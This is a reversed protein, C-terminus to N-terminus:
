PWSRPGSPRATRWRRPTTWWGPSPPPRFRRRRGRYHGVLGLAAANVLQRETEVYGPISTTPGSGGTGSSWPWSRARVPPRGGQLRRLGRGLRGPGGPGAPRRDGHPLHRGRHHGAGGGAHGPLVAQILVFPAVANAALKAELQAVRSTSRDPVMSGPAPTSPTTSWCTWAVGSPSWGTSPRGCPPTTTCTPWWSSRVAVGGARVLAAPRRWAEPCRGGGGTDSDDRGEGRRVTRGTVAVDWGAAALALATARGIGRTAGTVLAVPQTGPM